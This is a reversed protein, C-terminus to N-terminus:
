ASAAVPQTFNERCFWIFAEVYNSCARDFAQIFKVEDRLSSIDWQDPDMLDETYWDEGYGKGTIYRQVIPAKLNARANAGCNGCKELPETAQPVEKFNLQGCRRCRSKYDLQKLGGQYLVLYGGNRGNHGIQFNWSYEEAFEDLAYKIDDYLFDDQIADWMVNQVDDPLGLRHIKVNNAFSKLGNWSNMTSYRFHNMLFGAMESRSRLDVKTYFYPHSM